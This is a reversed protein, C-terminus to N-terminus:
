SHAVIRRAPLAHERRVFLTWLGAPRDPHAIVYPLDHHELSTVAERLAGEDGFRGLPVLRRTRCARTPPALLDALVERAAELADPLVRIEAGSSRPQILYPIGGGDLSVGALEAEARTRFTAVVITENM